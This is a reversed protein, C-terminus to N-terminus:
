AAAPAPARGRIAGHLAIGALYASVAAAAGFPLALTALAAQQGSLLAYASGATLLLTGVVALPSAGPAPDTPSSLGFDPIAPASAAQRLAVLGVVAAAAARLAASGNFGALAAPLPQSVVVPVFLIPLWRVAWELAPSFFRLVSAAAPRGALGLIAFTAFMGVAPSPLNLGAQALAAKVGQDVAYLVALGGWLRAARGAAAALSGPEPAVRIKAGAEAGAAAAAAVALKRAESAASSLKVSLEAIAKASPKTGAIVEKRLSDATVTVTSSVYDIQALTRRDDQRVIQPALRRMQMVAAEAYSDYAELGADRGQAVKANAKSDAARAALQAKLTDVAFTASDALQQAAEAAAAAQEAATPQPVEETVPEAVAAVSPVTPARVTGSSGTM